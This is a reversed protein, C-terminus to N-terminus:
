YNTSSYTWTFGVKLISFLDGNLRRAQYRSREGQGYGLAEFLKKAKDRDKMDFCLVFDTYEQEGEGVQRGLKKAFEMYDMCHYRIAVGGRLRLPM